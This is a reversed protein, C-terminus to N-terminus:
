TPWSFSAGTAGHAVIAKRARSPGAAAGASRATSGSRGCAVLPAVLARASSACSSGARCRRPREGCACSPDGPGRPASRSAATRGATRGSGARPRARRAPPRAGRASPSITASATSCSSPASREPERDLVGVRRLVPRADPEDPAAVRESTSRWPVRTSGRAVVEARSSPACAGSADRLSATSSTVQRSLRRAALEVQDDIQVEPHVGRREVGVDDQRRGGPVLLVVEVGGVQVREDVRQLRRHRGAPLRLDRSPCRGPAPPSPSRARAPRVQRRRHLVEHPGARLVVRRGLHGCGSSRSQRLPSHSAIGPCSSAAGPPPRARSRRVECSRNTENPGSARSPPRPACPRASSSRPGTRRAPAAAAPPTPRGANDRRRAPSRRRRVDDEGERRLRVALGGEAGELRLLLLDAQRERVEGLGVAAHARGEVVQCPLRPPDEVARAPGPEGVVAAGVGGVHQVDLPEDRPAREGAALVQVEVVGGVEREALREGRVLRPGVRRRHPVERDRGVLLALMRSLKRVGCPFHFM